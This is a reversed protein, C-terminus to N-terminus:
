PAEKVALAAISYDGPEYAMIPHTCRRARMREILYDSFRYRQNFDWTERVHKLVKYDDRPDTTYEPLAGHRPFMQEDKLMEDGNLGMVLTAVKADLEQSM